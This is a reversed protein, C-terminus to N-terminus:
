FVRNIQYERISGRVSRAYERIWCCKFLYHGCRLHLAMKDVAFFDFFFNSCVDKCALM